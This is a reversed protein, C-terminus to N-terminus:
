KTKKYFTAWLLPFSIKKSLNKSNLTTKLMFNESNLREVSRQNTSLLVKNKNNESVQEDLLLRLKANRENLQQIVTSNKEFDDENFMTKYKIYEEAYEEFSDINNHLSKIYNILEEQKMQELQGNTKVHKFLMEKKKEVIEIPIDKHKLSPKM